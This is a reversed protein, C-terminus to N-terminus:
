NYMKKYSAHLLKTVAGPSGKGINRRGIKTVPLVEALSSTLFVEGAGYLEKPSIPREEAKLGLKKAIGMVLSRTIGPLAGSDLSPTLIKKGKVLFINSAAAEAVFGATNLIIAEDFGGKRARMRALIYNLFNLSKIGALPSHENQRIDSIEARIGRSYFAPPYGGFKKATIMITPKPRKEETLTFPGEGRTVTVRLSADKSRNKKLARYLERKLEAASVPIKINVVEAAAFLRAIHENLKFVKGDYVRMTEFIGDGYLFGRDQASIKLNNM